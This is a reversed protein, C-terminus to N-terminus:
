CRSEEPIHQLDLVNPLRLSNSFVTKMAARFVSVYRKGAVALIATPQVPFSWRCVAVPPMCAADECRAICYVHLEECGCLNARCDVAVGLTLFCAELCECAICTYLVQHTSLYRLLADGMAQLTKGGRKSDQAYYIALFELRLFM